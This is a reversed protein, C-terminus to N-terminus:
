TGSWFTSQLRNTVSDGWVVTIGTDGPVGDWIRVHVGTITSTTTSGTQYAYFWISEIDWGSLNDIIFDDAVWNDNVFQHGFGLYDMGLSTNQLVSEDAGGVGTGPSNVFPGNSYLAVGDPSPVDIFGPQVIPGAPVDGVREANSGAAVPSAAAVLACFLVVVFTLHRM